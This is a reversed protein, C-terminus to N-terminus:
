YTIQTNRLDSNRARGPYRNKQNGPGPFMARIGNGLLALSWSILRPRDMMAEDGNAGNPRVPAGRKSVMHDIPTISRALLENM